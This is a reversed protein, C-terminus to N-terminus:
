GRRREKKGRNGERLRDRLTLAGQSVRLSSNKM